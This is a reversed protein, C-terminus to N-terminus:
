RENSESTKDNNVSPQAEDGFAARDEVADVALGVAEIIDAAMVGRSGYREQAFSAACGHIECALSALMPLAETDKGSRALLGAMIGALVDGSGATALCSPGPKPLLAAEVGVCATANGKAVVALESGGDSWVIRRAAELAATLSDPPNDSLGVLRGLERRHPTLVLPSKRRLLEPFEDIRNSTLRALSNLGDADIVLPADSGLLTSVVGM